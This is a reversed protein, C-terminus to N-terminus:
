KLLPLFRNKKPIQVIGTLGLDCLACAAADVRCLVAKMPELDVHPHLLIRSFCVM